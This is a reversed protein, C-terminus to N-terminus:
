HSIKNKNYVIDCNIKQLVDHMLPLLVDEVVLELLEIHGIVLVQGLHADALEDHLM